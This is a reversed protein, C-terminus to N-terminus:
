SAPPSGDAGKSVLFNVMSEYGGISVVSLPTALVVFPICSHPECHFVAVLEAVVQRNEVDSPRSEALFWVRGSEFRSHLRRIAGVM